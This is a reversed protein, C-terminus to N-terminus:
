PQQTRRERRMQLLQALSCEAHVGVGTRHLFEASRVAASFEAESLSPNWLASLAIVPSKSRLLAALVTQSSCSNAAVAQRVARSRDKALRDLVWSPTSGGSAARVRAEADSSELLASWDNSEEQMHRNGETERTHM